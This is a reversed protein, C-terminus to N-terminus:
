IRRAFPIDLEDPTPRAFYNRQIYRKMQEREDQHWHQSLVSAVTRICWVALCLSLATLYLMEDGKSLCIPFSYEAQMANTIAAGSVSAHGKAAV